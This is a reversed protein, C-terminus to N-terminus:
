TYYLVQHYVNLENSKHMELVLDDFSRKVISGPMVFNEEKEVYYSKYVDQYLNALHQEASGM